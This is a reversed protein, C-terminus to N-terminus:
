GIRSLKLLKKLDSLMGSPESELPFRMMLNGLPDVLLLDDGTLLETPLAELLQRGGDADAAMVRLSDSAGPLDPGPAPGRHLYLREVRAMNKGMAERAQRSRYLAQACRADCSGADVYVLTWRGRLDTTGTEGAATAAPLQPLLRPPQILVGHNTAGAPRWDDSGYYLVLALLLPGLFLLTLAIPQWPLSRRARTEDIM